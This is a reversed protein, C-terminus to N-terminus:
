QKADFMGSPGVPLDMTSAGKTYNNSGPSMRTSQVFNLNFEIMELSQQILSTNHSNIDILQYVTKKLNDHIQALQQQEKPQKELMDIIEKVTLTAADQNIVTAVNVIVEERKRELANVKDLVAQEQETIRQLSELDNGVIITTKEHAIPIIEEYLKYEKELITILEEIISAM